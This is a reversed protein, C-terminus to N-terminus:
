LSIGDDPDLAAHRALRGSRIRLARARVADDEQDDDLLPLEKESPLGPEPASQEHEPLTPERRIGGDADDGAGAASPAAEQAVPRLASWDDERPAYAAAAPAPPAVVRMRLHRDEYFRAQRARIPSCGSVLVIEDTPPLQMVEGPTLLPRATEQRGVM